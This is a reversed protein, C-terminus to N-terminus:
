QWKEWKKDDDPLEASIRKAEYIVQPSKTCNKRVEGVM